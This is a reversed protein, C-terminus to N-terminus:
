TVCFFCVMTMHLVHFLVLYVLCSYICRESDLYVVLALWCSTNMSAQQGAFM